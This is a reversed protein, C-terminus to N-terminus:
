KETCGFKITAGSKVVREGIKVPEPASWPDRVPTVSKSPAGPLYLAGRNPTNLSLVEQPLKNSSSTMKLVEQTPTESPGEISPGPSDKEEIRVFNLPVAVQVKKPLDRPDEWSSGGPTTPSQGVELFGQGVIGQYRPDTSDM